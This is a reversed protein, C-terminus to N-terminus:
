LGMSGRLNDVLSSLQSLEPMRGEPTLKHVLEPILQALASATEPEAYGAQEAIRGVAAAGFVRRVADADIPLNEGGSVWSQAQHAFGGEEFRRLVEVLGGGGSASNSGGTVAGLIGGLPGGSGPVNRTSTGADALMGLVIPILAAVVNGSQGQAQGPTAAALADKLGGMMEDLLGM